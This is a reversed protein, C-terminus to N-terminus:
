SGEQKSNDEPGQNIHPLPKEIETLTGSKDTEPAEPQRGGPFFGRVKDILQRLTDKTGYPEGEGPAYKQRNGPYPVETQTPPKGSSGEPSQLDAM